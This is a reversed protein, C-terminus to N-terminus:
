AGGGGRVSAGRADTLYIGLDTPWPMLDPRCLLSTLSFLSAAPLVFFVFRPSLCVGKV